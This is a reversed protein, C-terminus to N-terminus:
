SAADYSAVVCWIECWRAKCDAYRWQFCASKNHSKSWVNRPVVSSLIQIIARSRKRGCSNIAENLSVRINELRLLTFMSICLVIIKGTTKNPHWIQDRVHTYKLVPHQPFYKSRLPIFHCAISSCQMILLKMVQVRRWTNNSQHLWPLNSPRLM